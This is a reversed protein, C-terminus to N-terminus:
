NLPFSFNLQLDASPNQRNSPLSSGGSVNIETFFLMDIQSVAWVIATATILLNRTKYASNYDDYKAPILEKNTENLYANEKNNADVIFAISTVLSATGLISYIIGKTTNGLQFQGWGPLILNKVVASKYDEHLSLINQRVIRLSDILPREEELQNQFEVKVENFFSVIKPSIRDTDMSYNSDERLLLKFTEAADDEQGLSFHSIGKMEYIEILAERQFDKETLMKSALNIVEDYDFAIYKQRLEEVSNSQAHSNLMLLLIYLPVLLSRM